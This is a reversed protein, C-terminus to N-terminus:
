PTTRFHELVFKHAADLAGAESLENHGADEAFWFTKPENAAAFVARGMAPPVVGDRGGTMVLVPVRVRGIRGILDFRDRILWDVPAVPFRLRAVAAISTYPSELLVAGVEVEAALRVAIGAGLSEGWLVIRSAPGGDSRLTAYAARADEFLGAETPAGSNGGYGRYELLVVGWGFRSLQALRRARYGINGGNGHLYLVVPSADDAPPVSWALLDLGDATHVTVARAAGVGASRLDPPRTDPLYLFRRQQWALLGVVACYLGAVLLAAVILVVKM